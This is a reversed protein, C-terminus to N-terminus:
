TTNKSRSKLVLSAVIPAHDSLKNWREGLLVKASEVKFGRVYIRDMRLWPMVAPFTRAPTIRPSRGTLRRLYNIFSPAMYKEDFVECVGLKERLTESLQNNWDNFDGAIIVPADAPASSRVMKILAETQRKRGGSFLGLHVVYCHVNVEESQVICHLIGRSELVHDSVDQNESYIIPYGSLLANGHHGHAYEANLGYACHYHKGALFEHQSLTLLPSDLRIAMLDHRGQVEQLFILDASLSRLSRKLTHIRPRQSLSTVGKHINYTAIRLKM